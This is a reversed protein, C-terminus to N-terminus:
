LTCTRQWREFFLDRGVLIKILGRNWPELKIDAENLVQSILSSILVLNM